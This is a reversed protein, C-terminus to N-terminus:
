HRRAGRKRMDFVKGDNGIVREPADPQAWDVAIKLLREAVAEVQPESDGVAVVAQSPVHVLLWRPGGDRGQKAFLACLPSRVTAFHTGGIHNATVNFEEPSDSCCECQTWIRLTLNIATKTRM